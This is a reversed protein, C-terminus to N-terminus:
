VKIDLTSGPRLPRHDARATQPESRGAPTASPTPQAIMEPVFARQPAATKIVVAASNSSQDALDFVDIRRPSSQPRAPQVPQAAGYSQAAILAANSPVQMAAKIGDALNV